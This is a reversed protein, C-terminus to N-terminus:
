VEGIAGHSQSGGLFEVVKDILAKSAFPKQLFNATMANERLVGSAHGSMLLIHTDPREAKLHEALDPGSMRPMKIDTIVLDIKGPYEGPSNWRRKGM